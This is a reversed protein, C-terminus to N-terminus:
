PRPGSARRGTPCGRRRVEVEAIGAAAPVEARGAASLDVELLDRPREVVDAVVARERDLPFVAAHIAFVAGGLRSPEDLLLHAELRGAPEEIRGEGFALALDHRVPFATTREGIALEHMMAPPAPIHRAPDRNALAGAILEWALNNCSDALWTAVEAQQPERAYCCFPTPLPRNAGDSRRKSSGSILSVVIWVVRRRGLHSIPPPRRAKRDGTPQRAGTSASSPWDSACRM